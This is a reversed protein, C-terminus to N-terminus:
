LAPPGQADDGVDLLDLQRVVFDGLQQADDKIGLMQGHARAIAGGLRTEFPTAVDRLDAVAAALDVPDPQPAVVRWGLMAIVVLACAVGCYSVWRPATDSLEAPRALQARRARDIRTMTREHLRDSFAPTSAAAESILRNM